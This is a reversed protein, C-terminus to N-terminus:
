SRMCIYPIPGTVTIKWRPRRRTIGASGNTICRPWATELYWLEGDAFHLEAYADNLYLWTQLRGDAYAEYVVGVDGPIM